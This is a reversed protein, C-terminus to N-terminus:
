NSIPRLQQSGCTPCVIPFVPQDQRRAEKKEEDTLVLSEFEHGRHCRYRVKVPM